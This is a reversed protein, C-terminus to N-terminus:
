AFQHNNQGEKSAKGHRATARIWYVSQWSNSVQKALVLYLDPDLTDPRPVDDGNERLPLPRASPLRTNMSKDQRVRGLTKYITGVESKDVLGNSDLKPIWPQGKRQVTQVTRFDGAM